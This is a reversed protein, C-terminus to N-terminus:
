WSRKRHLNTEVLNAIRLAPESVRCPASEVARDRCGPRWLRLEVAELTQGRCSGCGLRRLGPEEARHIVHEVRLSERRLLESWPRSRSPCVAGLGPGAVPGPSRGPGPAPGLRRGPSPGPGLRRRPGLFVGPTFHGPAPTATSNYM